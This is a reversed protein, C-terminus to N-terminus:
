LRPKHAAPLSDAAAVARDLVIRVPLGLAHAAQAADDFEVKIRHDSIKIGIRHGEIDVSTV